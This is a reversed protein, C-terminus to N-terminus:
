LDLYRGERLSAIIEEVEGSEDNSQAMGFFPHEKISKPGSSEHPYIVGKPQGRYLIQVNEGRELANIIEKSKYRLDVISAQM